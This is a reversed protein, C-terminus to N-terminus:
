QIALLERLTKGKTENKICFRWIDDHLSCLWSFFQKKQGHLIYERLLNADVKIFAYFKSVSLFSGKKTISYRNFLAYMEWNLLIWLFRGLLYCRVRDAKMKHIRDIKLISKWTKFMLEIQWRVRYLDTLQSVSLMTDPINTIFLNMHQLYNYVEPRNDRRYAKKRARQKAADPPLLTVVLRVPHRASKGLYIPMDLYGKRSRKLRQYLTKYGLSGKTLCEYIKTSSQLRSIYYAGKVEMDKFSDIKYYGLDRIILDRPGINHQRSHAYSHDNTRAGLMDFSMIKSSLIDYEFQIQMCAKPGDGAFGPFDKALAEPLKFETSDMLRISDFHTTYDSPLKVSLQQQLCRELLRQLLIVAKSNFRKDLAQMCFDKGRDKSLLRRHQDLTPQEVNIPDFLVMKLFSMEDLKSRRQCFGSEKGLSQLTKVSLSRTIKQSLGDLQELIGTRKNRQSIPM